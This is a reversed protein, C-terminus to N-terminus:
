NHVVMAVDQINVLTLWVASVWIVIFLMRAYIKGGEWSDCGSGLWRM